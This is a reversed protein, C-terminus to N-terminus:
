FMDKRRVLRLIEIFRNIFPAAWSVPCEPPKCFTPDASKLLHACGPHENYVSLVRDVFAVKGVSAIKLSKQHERLLRGSDEPSLEHLFRARVAYSNSAPFNGVTERVEGRSTSYTVQRWHVFDVDPLDITPCSWDDDDTPFIWDDM